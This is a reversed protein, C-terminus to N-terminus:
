EGRVLGWIFTFYEPDQNALKAPDKWFYELGMSVIETANDYKKGMYPHMFKDKWTYEDKGYKGSTFSPDENRKFMAATNMHMLSEGRARKELFRVAKSYVDQNTSELWHGMEHVFVNSESGSTFNMRAGYSARGAGTGKVDVSGTAVTKSVLANFIKLGDEAAKKKEPLRISLSSTVKNPDSVAMVRLTEQSRRELIRNKEAILMNHKSRHIGLDDIKRSIEAIEPDSKKLREIVEDRAKTWERKISNYKNDYIKRDAKYKAYGYGTFQPMGKYHEDIKAQFVGDIKAFDSRTAKYLKDRYESYLRALESSGSAAEHAKREADIQRQVSALEAAYKESIAIVRKMAEDASKAGVFTEKMFGGLPRKDVIAPTTGKPKNKAGPTRYFPVDTPHRNGHRKQDHLGRLHKITIDRFTDKLKISDTM